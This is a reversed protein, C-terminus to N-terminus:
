RRQMFRQVVYTSHEEWKCQLSTCNESEKVLPLGSAFLIPSSAVAGELNPLLQATCEISRILTYSHISNLAQFIVSRFIAWDSKLDPFVLLYFYNREVSRFIDWDPNMFHPNIM